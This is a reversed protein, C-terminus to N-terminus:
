GGALPGAKDSSVGHLGANITAWVGAVLGCAAIITHTTSDGFLPTLLAGASAIFGLVGVVLNIWASVKPDINMTKRRRPM